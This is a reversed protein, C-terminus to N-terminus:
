CPVPNQGGQDMLWKQFIQQRDLCLVSEWLFCLLEGASVIKMLKCEITGICDAL